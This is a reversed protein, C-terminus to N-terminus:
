MASRPDGLPDAQRRMRLVALWRLWEGLSRMDYEAARQMQAKEDRTVRVQIALERARRRPPPAEMEMATM